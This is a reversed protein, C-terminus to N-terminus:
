SCFSIMSCNRATQFSNILGNFLDKLRFYGKWKQVRYFLTISPQHGFRGNSRIQIVCVPTRAENVNWQPRLGCMWASLQLSTQPARLDRRAPYLGGVAKKRKNIQRDITGMVQLIHYLRQRAEWGRYLAGLAIREFKSCLRLSYRPGWFGMQPSQLWPYPFALTLGTDMSVNYPSERQLREIPCITACKLKFFHM